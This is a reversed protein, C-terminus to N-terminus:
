VSSKTRPPFDDQDVEMWSLLGFVALRSKEREFVWADVNVSFFGDPQETALRPLFMVQQDSELKGSLMSALGAAVAGVGVLLGLIVKKM